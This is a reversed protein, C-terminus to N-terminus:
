FKEIWGNGEQSLKSAKKILETLKSKVKGLETYNFEDTFKAGSKKVGIYSDRFMVQAIREGGYEIEFDTGVQSIKAGLSLVHSEIKGQFTLVKDTLKLGGKGVTKDIPSNTSKYTKGEKVKTVKTLTSKQFDNFDMVKKPKSESGTTYDQKKAFASKLAKLDLKKERSKRGTSAGHNKGMATKQFMRNAGGPNYPMSIDGSGEKGGGSAWATGNLSGPFASPQSSVVPGMGVGGSTPVSCGSVAPGGMASTDELLREKRKIESKVKRIKTSDANETILKDLKIYLDYLSINEM